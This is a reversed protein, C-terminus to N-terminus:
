SLKRCAKKLERVFEAASGVPDSPHSDMRDVIASAVVAGDAFATVEGVQKPTSIGFGVVAPLETAQKVTGVLSRADTSLAARAGTVGKLSVCYVFGSASRSIERIREPASTPAVMGVVDLGSAAAAARLEASEELPLDPVILGDVGASSAESAFCGLGMQMIPNFYSMMVLPVAIQRRLSGVLELAAALGAGRELAAQNARQLTAGDALPDSFPVGLEVVDAGADVIACLLDRTAPLSPYGTMLYPLLAAEGRGGLLDFRQAIRGTANTVPM